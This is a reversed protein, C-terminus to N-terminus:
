PGQDCAFGPLEQPTDVQWALIPWGTAEVALAAAYGPYTPDLGYLTWRNVESPDDLTRLLAAPEGPLLSVDFRDLPLSLGEGRAKVFAEKRTWCRFFAPGQDSPPLERLAAVERPSFFHKAIQEGSLEPNIREVDVGIRPARAFALLALEHSHSLNFSLTPHPTGDDQLLYPKRYQTYGFCLARPSRRLYAALLLRLAGRAIVYQNHDRAFHFRRARDQEDATLLRWLRQTGHDRLDLSVQWAHIVDDPLDIEAPPPQWAPFRLGPGTM